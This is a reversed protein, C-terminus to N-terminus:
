AREGVTQSWPGATPPSEGLQRNNMEERRKDGSPLAKLAETRVTIQISRKRIEDLWSETRHDFLFAAEATAVSFDHTQEHTVNGYQAVSALGGRRTM